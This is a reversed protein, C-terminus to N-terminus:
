LKFWFDISKFISNGYKTKGGLMWIKNGVQISHDIIIKNEKAYELSEGKFQLNIASNKITLHGQNNLNEYYQVIQYALDNRVFNLVKGDTLFPNYYLEKAKPLQILLKKDVAM